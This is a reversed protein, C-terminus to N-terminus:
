SIIKKFLDRLYKQSDNKNSILYLNINNTFCLETLPDMLNKCKLINKKDIKTGIITIKGNSFKKIYNFWFILNDYYYCDTSDFFLIFHDINNKIYPDVISYFYKHSNSLGIDYINTKINTNDLYYTSCDIGNTSSITDIFYNDTTIINLFTSKGTNVNGCFVIKYRNINTNM